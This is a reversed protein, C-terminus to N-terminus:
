DGAAQSRDSIKLIQRFIKRVQKKPLGLDAARKAANRSIEKERAEDRFPIGAAHKVQAARMVIGLRAALLRVIEADIRDIERRSEALGPPLERTHSM